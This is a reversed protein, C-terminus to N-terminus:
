RKGKRGLPAKAKAKPKASDQAIRVLAKDWPLEPHTDFLERLLEALDSPAEPAKKKRNRKKEFEKGVAEVAENVKAIMLARQWAIDLTESDPIVKEVGHEEFKAELWTIFQRSTMANLEVRQGEWYKPKLAFGVNSYRLQGVLFAREDPTTGCAFLATSPSKKQEYIRQEPQLGMKKVDVLRLGLDRVNPKAKFQFRDNSHSLWHCILLGDRDFDHLVFVTVGAQSLADVLKRAAIVSMGKSSFIAMDYREAIQARQLVPAFGEKEVFLAFRFRNAPGNTPFSDDLEPPEVNVGVDDSDTWSDVYGRVDLTGIGISERSHPEAFHGRADAVVDWNATERPHKLIYNPLLKQTFTSSEKWCKGGTLEQVLPRAAYMIQRMNAPLRGNDSAQMYAQKMVAWAAKKISINERKVANRERLRQLAREDLADRNSERIARRKEAVFKQTVDAIALRLSAEISV